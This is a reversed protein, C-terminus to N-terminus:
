GSGAAMLWRPIAVGEVYGLSQRLELYDILHSRLRSRLYKLKRRVLEHQAKSAARMWLAHEEPTPPRGIQGTLEPGLSAVWAADAYRGPDQDDSM